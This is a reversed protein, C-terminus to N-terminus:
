SRFTIDARIEEGAPLTIRRYANGYPSTDVDCETSFTIDKIEAPFKVDIRQERSSRWVAHMTRTDLDWSASVEVGGRAKLCSYNGRKWSHPVAPLLKMLGPRSFLLMEQVAAVLGFNADIQFPPEAGFWSVTLGQERWDNHYTFLNEGVVSRTMLELCELAREGDGLRAYINAMHAYSWGSQSSLGVVLRKEVATHCAEFLEPATEETVEFGPFLPYIHSLHRHHYNDKLPPHLWERMAGDENTEYEPLRSLMEKWRVVSEQEIGLYECATCLNGLLERVLAVDMTANVAALSAHPADPVNEPSLSPCVTLRGNEDEVLFDEYFLATEKLFPVAREELFTDDATFLWYDYFLQSLWAAAATWNIWPGSYMLGNTTQSIPILIGRCGYIRQANLRYDPIMSEYYDFFPPVTEPMNGPLAQWYNMQINEDNHYDSQWPPDWEGNWVGQLNAPLSGEESSAMLLYRGYDFMREVLATDVNGEYARLLLEENSLDREAGANLNISARQFISRNQSEHRRFLEGYNHPLNNLHKRCRKLGNETPENAFLSIMVLVSTAESVATTGDTGAEVPASDGTYNQASVTAVGGFENGDSYRGTISIENSQSSISYIVPCTEDADHACLRVKYSVPQDATISLAIVNDALSVILRRQFAADGEKWSVLAEGTAFDVTRRYSCFAKRVSTELQVAFAPHYPDHHRLNYGQEEMKTSLFKEAKDYLGESLLERLEPVHESVDPLEQRPEPVWLSDHNVVITERTINGYVLAGLTGNGVPLADQWRTAPRKLFMQHRRDTM